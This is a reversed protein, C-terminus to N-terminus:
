RNDGRPEREGQRQGQQGAQSTAADASRPRPTPPAHAALEVKDQAARLEKDLANIDAASPRPFPSFINWNRLMELANKLSGIRAHCRQVISPSIDDPMVVEQGRAFAVLRAIMRDMAGLELLAATLRNAPGQCLVYM